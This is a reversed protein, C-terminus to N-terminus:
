ISVQTVCTNSASDWVTGDACSIAQKQSGYNCGGAALALSPMAVIALAALGIKLKM